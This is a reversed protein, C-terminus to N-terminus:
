VKFPDLHRIYRFIDRWTLRHVRSMSLGYFLRGFLDYIPNPPLKILLKVLPATWPFKVIFPFFKQLNEIQSKQSINIPSSDYISDGIDELGFNKPLFGKKISYDAIEYRPFPQLLSATASDPKIAVNIAVTEWANELTEGPLCLINYTKLALGYKKVLRGGKIVQKNTIFKKLVKIRLNENGTEIGMAIGYCGGKKLMKVLEEDVLNATVNCMFPMGVEKKYLPLFKKLWAKNATFVDDTFSITKFNYKERVAKIEKVVNRPTRRRIFCGKGQYMQRLLHNSCFTCNYPCGRATLFQKVSAKKLFDYKYYIGRDPFPLSDLDEILFRLSNKFIRGKRKVWLNPIRLYSKDKELANLLDFVAEEAEGLTVVDVGKEKIIQPYYTPHPGGLLTIVKPYKKKIQQCTKIVWDQEGTFCPFAVVDPSVGGIKKLLNKEEGTLLLDVEHNGKKVFAAISMVGMLPFASRQLFLLKM